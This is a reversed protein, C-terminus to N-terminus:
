ESVLHLYFYAFLTVNNPTTFFVPSPEYKGEGGGREEELLIFVFSDEAAVDSAGSTIADPSLPEFRMM